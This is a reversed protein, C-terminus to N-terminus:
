MISPGTGASNWGASYDTHGDPEPDPEADDHEREVHALTTNVSIRGRERSPGPWSGSHILRPQRRKKRATARM